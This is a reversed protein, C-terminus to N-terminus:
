KVMSAPSLISSESDCSILSFRKGVLEGCYRLFHYVNFSNFKWERYILGSYDVM